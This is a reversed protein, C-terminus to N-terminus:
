PRGGSHPPNTAPPPAGVTVPGAVIPPAAFTAASATPTGEISHSLSIESMPRRTVPIPRALAHELEALAVLYDRAALVQNGEATLMQLRADSVELQTSLGNTYRVGALSHARQALQVTGRRALLVALTRQVDQRAREVEVGVAQEVEDRRVEAQQLEATARQIAGFTRLGLFLPFEIRAKGEVNRRFQDRTPIRDDPFAQHSVTGTVKLEPWRASREVDLLRKRGQVEAQAAVIAARRGPAIAAAEAVPVLGDEFQVPTVLTVPRSLPVGLLRKLDLMALEYDNSSAVVPPEANLADVQAQILDYEARNGQRRFLQVQRFHAQAQDLGVRAIERLEGAAAAALYARKVALTVNSGTETRRAQTAERLARAAGLGAGVRRSYVTQTGTFELTWTNAAGFLTESGVAAGRFVSDFRRTYDVAGTLQPWIQAKSERIRGEAIRIDSNALRMDIGHELASQLAEDLSLRLTDTPVAAHEPRVAGEASTAGLAFALVVTLVASRKRAPIM